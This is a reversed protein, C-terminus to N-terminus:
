MYRYQSIHGKSIGNPQKEERLHKFNMQVVLSISWEDEDDAPHDIRIHKEQLFLSEYKNNYSPEYWQKVKRFSRRKM